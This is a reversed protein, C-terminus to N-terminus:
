SQSSSQHATKKRGRRQNIAYAGFARAPCMNPEVLTVRYAEWEELGLNNDVQFSLIDPTLLAHPIPQAQALPMDARLRIPTDTKTLRLNIFLPGFWDSTDIIGEFHEIHGPLPYNPPRRLLMSWGPATRAFLGLCVQILGPEPLSTLFPPAAGQFHDPAEAEFLDPFGPFHVSDDVTQWEQGDPSWAIGKGDWALYSDVPSFLWWGFGSASTIADCYQAARMPLTGGAFRDAQLPQRGQRYFQYFRCSPTSNM